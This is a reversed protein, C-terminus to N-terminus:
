PALDGHVVGEGTQLVGAQVDGALAISEALSGFLKWNGAFVPRKESAM